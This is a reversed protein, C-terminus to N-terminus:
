MHTSIIVRQDIQPDFSPINTFNQSLVSLRLLTPLNM